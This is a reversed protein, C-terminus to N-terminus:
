IPSCISSLRNAVYKSSLIKNWIKFGFYLSKCKFRKRETSVSLYLPWTTGHKVSLKTLILRYLVYTYYQRQAKAMARVQGMLALVSQMKVSIAQWHEPSTGWPYILATSLLQNASIGAGHKSGSSGCWCWKCRCIRSSFNISHLFLPPLLAKSLRLSQAAPRLFTWPCSKCSFIDEFGFGCGPQHSSGHESPPPPSLLPVHSLPWCQRFSDLCRQWPGGMHPPPILGLAGTHMKWPSRPWETPAPSSLFCVRALGEQETLPELVLWIASQQRIQLIMMGCAEESLRMTIAHLWYLVWNQLVLFSWM